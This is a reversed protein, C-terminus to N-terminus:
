DVKLFEPIKPNLITIHAASTSQTITGDKRNNESAFTYECVEEFSMLFQGLFILFQNRVSSGQQQMEEVTKKELTVM